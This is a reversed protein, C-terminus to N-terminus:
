PAIEQSTRYGPISQKLLEVPNNGLRSLGTLELQFFLSTSVQQQATALRHAVVRFAWCNANYELGALGEVIKRDRISYNMRGLGYWRATLPWQGSIDFQNIPDPLSATAERTRYALSILKGPEPNYRTGISLKESRNADLSYQWVMDVSWKKSLQGSVAALIDSANGDRPPNGLTVRQKEFYYRQGIAARL